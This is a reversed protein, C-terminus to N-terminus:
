LTLWFHKNSIQEFSELNSRAVLPWCFFFFVCGLGSGIVLCVHNMMEWVSFTHSSPRWSFSGSSCVASVTTFHGVPAIIEVNHQPWNASGHKRRWVRQVILACQFVVALSAILIQHLSIVPESWFALGRRRRSKIQSKKPIKGGRPCEKFSLKLLLM